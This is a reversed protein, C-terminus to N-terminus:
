LVSLLCVLKLIEEHGSNFEQRYNAPPLELHDRFYDWLLAQETEKANECPWCAFELPGVSEDAAIVTLLWGKDILDVRFGAHAKLRSQLNGSGIYVLDSVGKIRGLVKGNGVRVLYAGMCSPAGDATLSSLRSWQLAGQKLHSEIDTSNM